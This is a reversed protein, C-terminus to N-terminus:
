IVPRSQDGALLLRTAREEKIKRRVEDSQGHIKQPRAGIKILSIIDAAVHM